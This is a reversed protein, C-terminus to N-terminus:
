RDTARRSTAKRAKTDAGTDTAGDGTGGPNLDDATESEQSLVGSDPNASGKADKGSDDQKAAPVPAPLKGGEWAKPNTIKAAIDAPITDDPGYWAGSVSVRGALRAGQPTGPREARTAADATADQDATTWAKPNTIRAAIDDPVDDGPGYWTGLVSVRTVLTKKTAM